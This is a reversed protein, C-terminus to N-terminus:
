EGRTIMRSHENAGRQADEMLVVEVRLLECGDELAVLERASARM